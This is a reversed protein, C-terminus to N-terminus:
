LAIIIYKRPKHYYKQLATDEVLTVRDFSKWSPMDGMNEDLTEKYEQHIM